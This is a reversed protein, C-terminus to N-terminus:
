PCYISSSQASNGSFFVTGWIALDALTVTGSDNYDSRGPNTGASWDGAWLALDALSVGGTGNLDFISVHMQGLSTTGNNLTV